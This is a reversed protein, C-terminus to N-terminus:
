VSDIPTNLAVSLAQLNEGYQVAAKVDSPFAGRHTDGHLMCIPIALSQYETVNVTVVADIFHRKEAICATGQM